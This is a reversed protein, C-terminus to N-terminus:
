ANPQADKINPEVALSSAFAKAVLPNVAFPPLSLKGVVKKCLGMIDQRIEDNSSSIVASHIRQLYAISEEM